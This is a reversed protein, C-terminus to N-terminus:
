SVVGAANINSSSLAPRVPYYAKDKSQIGRSPLTYESSTGMRINHAIDHLRVFAAMGESRRDVLSLCVPLGVISRNSM